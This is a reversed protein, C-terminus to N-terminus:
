KLKGQAAAGGGAQERKPETLSGAFSSCTSFTLAPPKAEPPKSEQAKSPSPEDNAEVTAPQNNSRRDDGKLSIGMIKPDNMFAVLKEPSFKFQVVFAESRQVAVILLKIDDKERTSYVYSWQRERPASYQVLPEWTSNVNGRIARHFESETPAPGNSYDLDRLMAVKFNKVGAPKILKVALRALMMIGFFGQQKARYNKKMHNIVASYSKDDARATAAALALTVAIILAHPLLRRRTTM